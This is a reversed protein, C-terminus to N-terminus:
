DVDLGSGDVGPCLQWIACIRCVLGPIRYPMFVLALSLVLVFIGLHGTHNSQLKAFSAIAIRKMMVIM